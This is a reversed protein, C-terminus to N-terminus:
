VGMVLVCNTGSPVLSPRYIVLTCVDLLSNGNVCAKARKPKTLFMHTISMCQLKRRYKLFKIYLHIQLRHM